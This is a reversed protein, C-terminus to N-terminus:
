SNLVPVTRDTGLGRAEKQVKTRCICINRALALVLVLFWFWALAQASLFLSEACPLLSGLRGLLFRGGRSLFLSDGSSECDRLVAAEAGEKRNETALLISHLGQLVPVDERGAEAGLACAPSM